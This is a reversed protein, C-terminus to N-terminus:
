QWKALGNIPAGAIRQLVDGFKDCRSLITEVFERFAGDGGTKDTVIDVLSKVYSPSNAPCCSLGVRSLLQIDNVDDGIYAVQELTTGLLDCIEQAAAVKDTVGQRVYEVRLKAARAGVMETDEGTLIAVPITLERLFLIGASDSTNFKKSENGHKDYYMGGDTWVGDIDTMVVAPLGDLVNRDNM